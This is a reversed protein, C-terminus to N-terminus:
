FNWKSYILEKESWGPYENRLYERFIELMEDRYGESGNDMMDHHYQCGIAGNQPIGMGNKSRPIYHMISKIEKGLWTSKEMRYNINCFICTGRDRSIIEQRAAKSFERVNAQVSKKRM